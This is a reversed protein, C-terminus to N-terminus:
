NTGVLNPNKTGTKELYKYDEELAVKGKNCKLISSRVGLEHFFYNILLRKSLSIKDAYFSLYQLYDFKIKVGKSNGQQKIIIKDDIHLVLRYENEYSWQKHKKYFLKKLYNKVYKNYDMENLPIDLLKSANIVKFNYTYRVPKINKVLYETYRDQEESDFTKEYGLEFMACVGDYNDTYHSWMVMNENPSVTTFCAIVYENKMKLLKEYYRMFLEECNKRLIQIDCNQFKNKIQKVIDLHDFLNIPSADYINEIYEKVEKDGNKTLYAKDFEFKDILPMCDFPDNFNSPFSLFLEKDNLTQYIYDENEYFAYLYNFKPVIYEEKM